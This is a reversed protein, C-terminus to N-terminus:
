NLFLLKNSSFRPKRILGEEFMEDCKVVEVHLGNSKHLTKLVFYAEQVDVCHMQTQVQVWYPHDKRLHIGNDRVELCSGHKRAYAKISLSRDSWPYKIELVRPKHCKCCVVGDPSAGVVPTIGSLVLGCDHIELKQHKKREVNKFISRAVRERKKGWRIAASNAEGYYGMVSAVLSDTKGTICDKEVDVHAVIMGLFSATLRGLRQQKWAHSDAQQKTLEKLRYRADEKLTILNMLESHFQSSSVNRDIDKAASIISPMEPLSTVEITENCIEPVNAAEHVHPRYLLLGCKGGTLTALSDLDFDEYLNKEERLQLPRPDFGHRSSTEGQTQLVSIVDTKASVKIAPIELLFDTKKGKKPKHWKMEKETCTRNAGRVVEVLVYELLAAVHKCSGYIGGKCSCEAEEVKGSSKVLMVWVSYPAQNEKMQPQVLGKVFCRTVNAHVPHFAVETM